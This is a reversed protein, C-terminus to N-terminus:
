AGDGTQGKKARPKCPILKLLAESEGLLALVAMRQELWDRGEKTNIKGKPGYYPEPRRDVVARDLKRLGRVRALVGTRSPWRISLQPEAMNFNTREVKM